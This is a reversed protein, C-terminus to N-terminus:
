NVSLLTILLSFHVQPLRLDDIQRDIKERRVSHRSKIADIDVM